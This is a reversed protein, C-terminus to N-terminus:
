RHPLLADLEQRPRAHLRHRDGGGGRDGQGRHARHQAARRPKCGQLAGLHPARPAAPRHLQPACLMPCLLWLPRLRRSSTAVRRRLEQVCKFSVVHNISYSSVWSPVHLGLSTLLKVLYIAFSRSILAAAVHYDFLLNLSVLLAPYEGLSLSTYLYVSGSLPWRSALEAYCLADLVSIAGAFMYSVVVGPGASIAAVGTLVFIGAGISAGVGMLCLEVVGLSRKLHHFHPADDGAAVRGLHHPSSPPSAVVATM